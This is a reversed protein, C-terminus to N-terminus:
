KRGKRVYKRKKPAEAKEEVAPAVEVPKAAVVPAAKATSVIFAAYREADAGNFSVILGKRYGNFPTIVKYKKLGDFM